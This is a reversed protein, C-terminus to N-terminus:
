VNVAANEFANFKGALALTLSLPASMPSTSDNRACFKVAYTVIRILAATGNRTPLVASNREAV